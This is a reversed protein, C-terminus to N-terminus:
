IYTHIYTHTYTCIYVCGRPMHGSHRRQDRTIHMCTHIYIICTYTHINHMHIYTYVYVCVHPSGRLCAHMFNIHAVYMIYICVCCIYVCVQVSCLGRLCEKCFVHSCAHLRHAKAGPVEEFCVGSLCAYALKYSPTSEYTCAM